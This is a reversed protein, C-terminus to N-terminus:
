DVKKPQSKHAIKKIEFGFFDDLDPNYIELDFSSM